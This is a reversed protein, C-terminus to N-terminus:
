GTAFAFASAYGLYAQMATVISITIVVVRGLAGGKEWCLTAGCVVVLVGFPVAALSMLLVLFATGYIAPFIGGATMGNEPAATIFRWSLRETGHYAINGVIIGLMALIILTASLTLIVFVRDGIRNM